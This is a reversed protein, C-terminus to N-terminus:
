EFIRHCPCKWKIKHFLLKWNKPVKEKENIIRMKHLYKEEAAWFTRQANTVLKCTSLRTFYDVCVFSAVVCQQWFFSINEIWFTIYLCFGHFSKIKVTSFGFNRMRPLPRWDWLARSFLWWILQGYKELVAHLYLLNPGPPPPTPPASHDEKIRWHKYYQLLANQPNPNFICTVHIM